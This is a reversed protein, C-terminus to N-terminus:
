VEFLKSSVIVRSDNIKIKQEILFVFPEGKGVDGIICFVPDKDTSSLLTCDNFILRYEYGKADAM